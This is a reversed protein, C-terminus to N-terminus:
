GVVCETGSDLAGVGVAGGHVEGLACVGVVLLEVLKVTTGDLECACLETEIGACVRLVANLHLDPLAVKAKGLLAPVEEVSAQDLSGVTLRYRRESLGASGDDSWHRSTLLWPSRWSWVQVQEALSM